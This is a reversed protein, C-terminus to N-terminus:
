RQKEIVVRVSVKDASITRFENELIDLESTFNRTSGLGSIDIPRTYIVSTNKIERKVGTATVSPPFVRVGAVRFGAAPSGTLRARVPLSLKIVPEMRLDISSPRLRVVEVGVPTTINQPLIKYTNHGEKAGSVDLEVVVNSPSLNNIVGKPGAVRVEVEGPPLGAIVMNAPIGKFVIPVLFGVETSSQGAVFFWLATAFVLALIKLRLNKLLIVKM